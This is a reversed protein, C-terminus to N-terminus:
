FHMFLVSGACAINKNNQIETTLNKQTVSVSATKGDKHFLVKHHDELKVEESRFVGSAMRHTDLQEM